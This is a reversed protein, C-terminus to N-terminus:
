GGAFNYKPSEPVRNTPYTNPNIEIIKSQIGFTSPTNTEGNLGIKNM